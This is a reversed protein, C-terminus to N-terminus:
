DVRAGSDRVIKTERDDDAYQVEVWRVSTSGDDLIEVLADRASDGAASEAWGEKSGDSFVAFSQIGNVMEPSIASVQGPRFLPVARQHADALPKADWSSVIIAHHRMYGM